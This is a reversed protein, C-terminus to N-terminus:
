TRVETKPNEFGCPFNYKQMFLEFDKKVAAIRQDDQSWVEIKALFGTMDTQLLHMKKYAWAQRKRKPIIKLVKPIKEGKFALTRKYEINPDFKQGSKLCYFVKRALKAAIKFKQKLKPRKDGIFRESYQVMDNKLVAPTKKKAQKLLSGSADVYLHKLHHNSFKNPTAKSVVKEKESKESIYGSTGERPSIGCYSLYHSVSQFRTIDGSELLIGTASLLGLGNCEKM